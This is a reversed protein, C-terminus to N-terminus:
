QVGSTCRAANASGRNMASITAYALAPYRVVDHGARILDPAPEQAGAMVGSAEGYSLRLHAPVIGAM